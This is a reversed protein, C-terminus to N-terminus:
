RVTGQAAMFSNSANTSVEEDALLKEANDAYYRCVWACKLVEEGASKLTKGMEMTMIRAWRDKESELIDAAAYMKTARDAFSTRRHAQFADFAMQIKADVEADSLPEFTRVTEGTAPNITAIPMDRQKQCPRLSFISQLQLLSVLIKVLAAYESICAAANIATIPADEAAM